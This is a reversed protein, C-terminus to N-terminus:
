DVVFPLGAGSEVAEELQEYSLNEFRRIRVIVSPERADTVNPNILRWVVDGKGDIEFVEGSESEVILTNGNSLRQNAGRTKSYFAKPDEEDRWEWVIKNTLPDVEIVRSWDRGLGNDFALIHGNPLLTADHPGSLIGQGWAWLLRKESWDILALTDQNRVCLLVADDAYIPDRGVLQPQRMTEVVNAHFLDLEAGGEFMRSTGPQLTFLEPSSKLLELLSVREQVEGVADMVVVSNDRLPTKDGFEDVFRLDYDLTWIRGQTDVDVDHHASMPREWLLEGDWNFRALYRSDYASQPDPNHPRRGMVLLDGNSALVANGWRFCPKYEWQHRLTGDMEILQASCFHANTLLNLGPAAREPDHLVVGLPTGEPIAPGTGVYGLAKLKDVIAPDIADSAPETPEPDGGCAALLLCVAVASIFSLKRLSTQTSM